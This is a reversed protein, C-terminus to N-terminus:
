SDFFIFLFTYSYNQYSFKCTDDNCTCTDGVQLCHDSEVEKLAAVFIGCVGAAAVSLIAAIINFFLAFAM